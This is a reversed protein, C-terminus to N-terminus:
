QVPFPCERLERHREATDHVKQGRLDRLNSYIRRIRKQGRGHGERVFNKEAGARRSKLIDIKEEAGIHPSKDELVCTQVERVLIKEGAFAEDRV